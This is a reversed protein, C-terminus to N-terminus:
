RERAISERAKSLDDLEGRLAETQDKLGPILSGLVMAGRVAEAMDGPRIIIAPPPHAGMRQLAALVEVIADRRTEISDSITKAEANSSALRADAAAVGREAAQAETTAEILAGSLRARDARISEVESDIAKRQQESARITDEVGQLEIQKGAKQQEITGSAPAAPEALLAAPCGVAAAFAAAGLGYRTRERRKAWMDPEWIM